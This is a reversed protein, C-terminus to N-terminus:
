ETPRLRTSDPFSDDREQPAIARWHGKRAVFCGWAKIERKCEVARGPRDITVLTWEGRGRNKAEVNISLPNLLGMFYLVEGVKLRM